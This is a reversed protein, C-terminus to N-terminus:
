AFQPHASAYGEQRLREILRTGVLAVSAMRTPNMHARLDTELHVLGDDSHTACVRFAEALAAEHDIGKFVQEPLVVGEGPDNPVVMARIAPWGIEALLARTEPAAPDAPVRGKVFRTPVDTLYEVFEVGSERDVFALLEVNRAGPFLSQSPRYSGESAVARPVGTADCARRAKELAAEFATGPRRIDGSFTGLADTDYDVPLLVQFGLLALAPALVAEKGHMTAILIEPASANGAVRSLLLPATGTTGHQPANEKNPTAM